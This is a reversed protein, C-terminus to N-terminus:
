DDVTQSNDHGRVLKDVSLRTRLNDIRSNAHERFTWYVNLNTNPNPNPDLTHVALETLARHVALRAHLMTIINIDMLM